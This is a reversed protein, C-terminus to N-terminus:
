VKCPRERGEMIALVRGRFEKDRPTDTSFLAIEGVIGDLYWLM